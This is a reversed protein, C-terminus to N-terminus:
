PYTSFQGNAAAIILFIIGLVALGIGIYGMILGAQAMGRGGIPVASEKIQKMAMHGCIVAPIAFLLGIGYCTCSVLSVIGLVMSAIAMGSSPPPGMPIPQGPVIADGGAMPAGVVPAPGAGTGLGADTPVASDGAPAPASAATDPSLEPIKGAETWEAMGEKWALDTLSVEGSQIMGQLAALDVPGEQKGNKAYYWEM